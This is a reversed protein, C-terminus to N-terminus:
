INVIYKGHKTKNESYFDATSCLFLSKLNLENLEKYFHVAINLVLYNIYAFGFNIYIQAQLDFRMSYQIELWTDIDREKLFESRLRTAVLHRTRSLSVAYGHIAV